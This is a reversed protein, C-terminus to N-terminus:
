KQKRVGLYAEVVKPNRLVDDPAGEAIAVGYDLVLVHSALARVVKLNHEILLVSVGYGNLRRVMEIARQAETPNLGAMVEDLLLLRTNGALARAVELRKRDALTLEGASATTRHSLEVQDLVEVARREAARRSPHAAFAGIMVNEIVSLSHIPRVIQFTRGLGLRARNHAAMATVVRGDLAVSGNSAKLHGSIVNFLTTKGAGNPGIIGLIEGKGLRFSVDNVAKLGGFTRTVNVVDLLPVTHDEPGAMTSSTM